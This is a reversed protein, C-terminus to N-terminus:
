PFIEVRNPQKVFFGVRRYSIASRNKKKSDHKQNLLKIFRMWDYSVMAQSIKKTKVKLLKLAGSIHQFSM